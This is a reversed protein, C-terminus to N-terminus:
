EELRARARIKVLSDRSIYPDTWHPNGDVTVEWRAPRRKWCDCVRERAWGVLDAVSKGIGMTRGLLICESGSVSRAGYDDPPAMCAIRFYRCMWCSQPHFRLHPDRYTKRRTM